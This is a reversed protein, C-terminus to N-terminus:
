PLLRSLSPSLLRDSQGLSACVDMQSGSTYESKQPAQPAPATLEEYLRQREDMQQVQKVTNQAYWKQQEQWMGRALEPNEFVARHKADLNPHQKSILDAYSGCFLHEFTKNQEETFETGGLAHYLGACTDYFKLQGYEPVWNWQILNHKVTQFFEPQGPWKRIAARLLPANFWMLSPHLRSMHISKTWDEWFEPEYRGAFLESSGSFWHEVKDFFVVDADCIWFPERESSLLSEIWEGHSCLPIKYYSAGVLYSAEWIPKYSSGNEYVHISASPFGRRITKAWLLQSQLRSPNLVTCLLHLNM